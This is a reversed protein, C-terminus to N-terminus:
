GAAEARHTSDFDRWVETFANYETQHSPDARLWRDFDDRLTSDAEGGHLRAFWRAAQQRAPNASM